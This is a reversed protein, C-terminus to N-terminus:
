RALLDGETYAAVTTVLPGDKKFVLDHYPLETV